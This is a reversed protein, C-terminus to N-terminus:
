AVETLCGLPEAGIPLLGESEEDLVNPEIVQMTQWHGQLFRAFYILGLACCWFTIAAWCWLLGYGWYTLGFWAALVPLPSMAATVWLIFATDGAGKIASVFIVNLADFLCYAAVFQLLVVTLGRIAAFEEPNSGWAHGLLFLDPVLVYLLAMAGMYIEAIWLGTWTARAALDPRKQGVQQGVITSVAMGVGLMPVFAISNVNFALTTAAMAQEGLRGVFLIFLSFAAVEVVMQLGSPGGFRLLRRMLEPDSRRGAILQCERETAPRHMIWWYMGAQSWQAIATGWAAGAIGLEPLGLKGFILLYNLAINLVAGISDVIMVVRVSGRGTFFSSFVASLLMGGAGLTLIRYYAVELEAIQPDHGAWQFITPALPVTLLMLPVFVLALRVAQWIAVGIREPRGAGHYQAVFTNVYSAIGLPFCLVTFFLMGSPMAAAMDQTSYWLLMMRDTFNMVTWSIMSVVLPLSLWLVDRAGCPRTWWNGAERITM